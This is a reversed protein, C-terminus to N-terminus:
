NPRAPSQGRRKAQIPGGLDEAPIRLAPFECQRYCASFPSGPPGAAPGADATPLGGRVTGSGRLRELCRGRFNM